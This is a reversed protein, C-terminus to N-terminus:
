VNLFERDLVAEVQLQGTCLNLVIGKEFEYEGAAVNVSGGTALADTIKSTANLGNTQAVSGSAM